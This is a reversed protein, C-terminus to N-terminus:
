SFSPVQKFVPLITCTHDGFVIFDENRTNMLASYDESYGAISNTSQDIVPFQGYTKYESSPLKKPPTVKSIADKLLVASWEGDNLFEPFRLSPTYRENDAM